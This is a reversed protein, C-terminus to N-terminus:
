EVIAYPGSEARLRPVEPNPQALLNFGTSTILTVVFWNINMIKIVILETFYIRPIGLM